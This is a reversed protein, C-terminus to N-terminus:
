VSGGKLRESALYVPLTLTFVTGEGTESVMSMTGRHSAIIEKSIALGLGAGSDKSKVLQSGRYYREFVHDQEHEPIGSGSDAVHIAFTDSGSRWDLRIEIQGGAPTFRKANSLLNSVVQEIRVSDIAATLRDGANEADPSVLLGFRIGADRIDFEYKRFLERVYPVIATERYDFRIQRTELKTLEFLDLIIRELFLTKEQLLRWYKPDDAPIIRDILGTIYAKLSTLPTILEHSINSMLRRRFEEKRKLEENALQLDQTREAVIRELSENLVRLEQSLSEARMFARSFSLSLQLSQTLLFFLFGFPILDRSGIMSGYFLTDHVISYGLGVLGILNTLSGHRKRVTALLYVGSLYAILPIVCGYQYYNFLETYVRAPALLQLAIYAGIVVGSVRVVVRSSEQPYQSQIFKLLFFLAASASIYEVKVAWEWAPWGFLYVAMTEGLVLTRIGIMCTMLAFYLAARNRNRTLYLATHYVTMIFLSGIIFSEYFVNTNRERTVQESTGFDISKWLGGKRQVFNSVQIVLELRDSSPQVYVVKPYNGPVMSELSTGVVGNGALPMGNVWLRYATAVSPMYLALTRQRLPEPLVIAARYTGYGHNSLKEGGDEQSSWISPVEIYGPEYRSEGGTFDAPELLRSGYWEWIGDLPVTEHEYRDWESLDLIGRLAGGAKSSGSAHAPLVCLGIWVIAFFVTLAPKLPHYRKTGTLRIIKWIRQMIRVM